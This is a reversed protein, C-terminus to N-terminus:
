TKGVTQLCSAMLLSYYTIIHQSTCSEGHSGSTPPLTVPPSRLTPQFQIVINVPLKHWELVEVASQGWLRVSFMFCIEWKSRWSCIVTKLWCRHCTLSDTERLKNLSQPIQIRILELRMDYDNYFRDLIILSLAKFLPCLVSM